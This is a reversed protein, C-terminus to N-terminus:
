GTVRVGCCSAMQSRRGAHPARVSEHFLLCGHALVDLKNAEDARVVLRLGMGGLSGDDVAVVDPSEGLRLFIAAEVAEEDGEM